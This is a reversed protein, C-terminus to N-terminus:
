ISYYSSNIFLELKKPKSILLNPLDEIMIKLSLYFHTSMNSSKLCSKQSNINFHTSYIEVRM